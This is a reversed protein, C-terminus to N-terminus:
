LGEHRLLEGVRERMQDRIKRVEEVSLGKPDTAERFRLDYSPTRGSVQITRNATLFQAESRGPALM